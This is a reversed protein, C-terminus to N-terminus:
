RDEVPRLYVWDTYGDHLLIPPKMFNGIGLTPYNWLNNIILTVPGDAAASELRVADKEESLAQIGLRSGALLVSATRIYEKSSRFDNTSVETRSERSIMWHSDYWYHDTELDKWATQGDAPHRAAEGRPRGIHDEPYVTWLGRRDWQLRDAAAPLIFKVGVESFGGTDTGNWPLIVTGPAPHPLHRVTYRVRM